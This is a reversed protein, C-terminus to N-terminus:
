LVLIVHICTEHINNLHKGFYNRTLIELIANKSGLKYLFLKKGM